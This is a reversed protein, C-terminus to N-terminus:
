RELGTDLPPIGREERFGRGLRELRSRSKEVAVRM